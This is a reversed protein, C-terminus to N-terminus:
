IDVRVENVTLQVAFTISTFGGTTATKVRLYREVAATRGSYIKQYGPATTIATFASGAVAAWADGVGNDSSSELSITCDTGTFAFVHLYQQWGFTGAAGFDVAGGNTAATDVRKGATMLLGHDVISETSQDEVKFMLEANAARTPDYGIQKSWMSHCPAGLTERHCRTQLVDTTPLLSLSLHTAGTADFLSTGSMSGSKLGGIRANGGKRVTTSDLTAPGGGSEWVQLESSLDYGAVYFANGIGSEAAM